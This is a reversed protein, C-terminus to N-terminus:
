GNTLSPHGGKWISFSTIEQNPIRVESGSVEIVTYHSRYERFKGYLVTGDHKKVRVRKGPYARSHANPM